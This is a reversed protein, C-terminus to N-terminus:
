EPNICCLSLIKSKLEVNLKKPIIVSLFYYGIFKEKNYCLMQVIFINRDFIKIKFIVKFDCTQKKEELSYHM